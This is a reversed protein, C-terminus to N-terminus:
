RCIGQNLHRGHLLSPQMKATPSMQRIDEGLDGPNLGEGGIWTGRTAPVNIGGAALATIAFTTCNYSNLNYQSFESSTIYNIVNFFQDGNLTISLKINFDRNQDDILIGPATPSTPAVVVGPYFGVNRVITGNSGIQTMILFTHGPNVIRIDEESPMVFVWKERTGPQPQDVALSIQYRNTNGPMNNFCNFYAKADRIPNKGAVVVVAPLAGYTNGGGGGGTAPPLLAKDYEAPAVQTPLFYCGILQTYRYGEPDQASYNYGEFYLCVTKANGAQGTEPTEVLLEGSSSRKYTALKQGNWDEILILGSYSRGKEVFDDDPLYTIKAAQLKQENNRYIYLKTISDLPFYYRASTGFVYSGQKHKVPVVIAAGTASQQINAQTWNPSEVQASRPNSVAPPGIRAYEEEFFHRAEQISISAPSDLQQFEKQCGQLIFTLALLIAIGAM